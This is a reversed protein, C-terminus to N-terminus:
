FDFCKHHYLRLVTQYYVGEAGLSNKFRANGTELKRQTNKVIGLAPRSVFGQGLVSNGTYM